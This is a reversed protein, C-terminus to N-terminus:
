CVCHLTLGRTCFWFSWSYANIHRRNACPSCTGCTSKTRFCWQIAALLSHCRALKCLHCTTACNDWENFEM